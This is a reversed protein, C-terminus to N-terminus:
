NEKKFVIISKEECNNLTDCLKVKLQNQNKFSTPVFQLIYSTAINANEEKILDDNFYIQLSKVPNKTQFNLSLNIFQSNIDKQNESSIIEAYNYPLQINYINPNELNNRIWQNIPWEWNSAQPDNFNLPSPSLPDDKNIWFLINHIQPYIVDGIKLNIIYEGNLIPKNANSPAPKPFSEPQYKQLAEIM